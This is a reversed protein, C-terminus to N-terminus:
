INKIGIIFDSINVIFVPPLLYVMFYFAPIM